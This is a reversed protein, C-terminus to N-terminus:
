TPNKQHWIPCGPYCDDGDHNHGGRTFVDLTSRFRKVVEDVYDAMEADPMDARVGFTCLGFIQLVIRQRDDLGGKPGFM